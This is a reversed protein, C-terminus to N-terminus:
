FGRARKITEYSSKIQQTKENALKIMEPPLGKSVLKDPHNKSMQRRYAKTVEADSARSTIELIKYADQLHQRPSYSKGEHQYQQYNQQARYRSEFNRFNFGRIGLQACIYQLATYKKPSVKQGDAYAMQLQIEIFTRLLSPRRWCSKKLHLLANDVNFYPQKGENFLQVAEKKMEASLNLRAMISTAARIENESVRGDSKALYGMITFTATYFIQQVNAKHSAPRTYGMLKLFRDFLGIDFLHGLVIGCVAGLPGGFISGLFIGIIKGNWFM